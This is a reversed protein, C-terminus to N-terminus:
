GVQFSGNFSLNVLYLGFFHTFCFELLQLVLDLVVKYGTVAGHCANGLIQGVVM